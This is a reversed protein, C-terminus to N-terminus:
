LLHLAAQELTAKDGSINAPRRITKAGYKEAVKLIEPSDSSVYIESGFLGSKKAAEITWVLMPKGHFPVINKKSIRKSGGRAPIICINNKVGNSGETTNLKLRSSHMTDNNLNNIHVMQISRPM